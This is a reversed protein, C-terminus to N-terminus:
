LCLHDLVLVKDANNKYTLLNHNRRLRSRGRLRLLSHVLLGDHTKRSRCAAWSALQDPWPVRRGGRDPRGIDQQLGLGMARSPRIRGAGRAAGAANRRDLADSLAHDCLPERRRAMPLLRRTGRARRAAIPCPLCAQASEPATLGGGAMGAPGQPEQCVLRHGQVDNLRDAM